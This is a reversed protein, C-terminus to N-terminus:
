WFAALAWRGKIYSYIGLSAVLIYVPIEMGSVAGWLLSPSIGVLLGAVLPKVRSRPDLSRAALYMLISSAALCAIGLVKAPMVVDRVVLYLFALIFAYLPGTAGAM